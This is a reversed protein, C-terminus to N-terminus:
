FFFFFAADKIIIRCFLWSKLTPWFVARSKLNQKGQECINHYSVAPQIIVNGQWRFREMKGLLHIGQMCFPCSLRLQLSLWVSHRHHRSLKVRLISCSSNKRRTHVEEYTSSVCERQTDSGVLGEPCIEQCKGLHLYFGARCRTCFNKNFCSDCELRCEQCFFM